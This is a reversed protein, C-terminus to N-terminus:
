IGNIDQILSQKSWDDYSYPAGEFNYNNFQFVKDEKDGTANNVVSVTIRIGYEGDKRQEYPINTKVLMSIKFHTSNSLYGEIQSNKINFDKIITVSDKQINNEDKKNSCVGKPWSKSNVVTLLNGSTDSIENRQIMEQIPQTGTQSAAGLITKRQSMDGKPVQVYVSTGKLYKVSTDAAYADILSDQYRVRYHGLSENVCINIQGQITKDYGLDSTKSDVIMGVAQIISDQVQTSSTLSM